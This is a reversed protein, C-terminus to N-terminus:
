EPLKSGDWPCVKWSVHAAKGNPCVRPKFLSNLPTEFDFGRIQKGNSATLRISLKGPEYPSVVRHGNSEDDLTFFHFNQGMNGMAAALIPKLQQQLISLDSSLNKLPSLKRKGKSDTIEIVMNKAVTEKGYFSFAGLPSIDAQVVALMTYPRLVKMLEDIQTATMGNGQKRFSAEWFEAPIWWVMHLGNESNAIQTDNTLQDVKVADLSKKELAHSISPSLCGFLLALTMLYKM